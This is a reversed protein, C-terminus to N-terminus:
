VVMRDRVRRGGLPEIFMIIFIYVICQQIYNYFWM